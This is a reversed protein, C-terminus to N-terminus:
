PARARGTLNAVCAPFIAHAKKAVAMPYNFPANEGCYIASKEPKEANGTMKVARVAIRRLM